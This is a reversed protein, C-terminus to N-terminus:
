KFYTITRFHVYAPKTTEKGNVVTIQSATRKTWNGNKDFSDYKYVFKKDGYYRQPTLDIRVDEIENGKEDLKYLYKQNLDGKDDFALKQLTNDSRTYTYRMGPTGDNYFMQMESLNGELYKHSYSYSIRTDRTKQDPKASGRPIMVAPPDYDNTISKTKSVRADNLYGYITIDSPNGRSDFSIRKVLHGKENFTEIYSLRRKQTSGTGSLDQSEQTVSSVMGLLGKDQSDSREKPVIPAQPLADPTSAIIAKLQEDPVTTQAACSAVFSILLLLFCIFRMLVMISLFKEMIMGLCKLM